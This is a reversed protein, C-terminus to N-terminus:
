LVEGLTMQVDIHHKERIEFQNAAPFALLCNGNENYLSKVFHNM